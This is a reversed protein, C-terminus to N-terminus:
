GRWAAEVSVKPYEERYRVAVDELSTSGPVGFLMVGQFREGDSPEGRVDFYGMSLDVPQRAQDTGYERGGVVASFSDEQAVRAGEGGARTVVDVVLFKDDGADQPRRIRRETRTVPAGSGNGAGGSANSGNQNTVDVSVEYAYSGVFRPNSVVATSGDAISVTEGFRATVPEFDVSRKEGFPSVRWTATDVYPWQTTGSFTRVGGPELYAEQVSSPQWGWGDTRYSVAGRYTGGVDGSNRVRLEYTVPGAARQEPLSFSQLEFDALADAAPVTWRKEPASDADGEVQWGLSPGDLAVSRDLRLLLWGSVSSGPAVEVGVLSRGELGIGVSGVPRGDVETLIEGGEVSLEKPRFTARRDDVNAVTGRLVAFAENPSADVVDPATSSGDRQEFFLGTEYRVNSFMVELPGIRLTEGLAATEGAVTITAFVGAERLRFRYRGAREFSLEVERHGREGPPVDDIRVDRAVDADGEISVLRDTYTGPEDGHNVASVTLTVPEGVGVTNETQVVVNGFTASGEVTTRRGSPVSPRPNESCGALAGASGVGCLALFRRRKM